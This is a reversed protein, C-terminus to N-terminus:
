SILSLIYVSGIATQMVFLFEMLYPNFDTKYRIYQNIGFIVFSILFLTASFESLWFIYLFSLAIIIIYLFTLFLVFNRTFYNYYKVQVLFEIGVGLLVIPLVWAILPLPAGILELGIFFADVSLCFPCLIRDINWDMHLLDRFEKLFELDM